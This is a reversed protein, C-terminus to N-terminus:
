FNNPSVISLFNFTYCSSSGRSLQNKSGCYHLDPENGVPVVFIRSYLLGETARVGIARKGRSNRARVQTGQYFGMAASKPHNLTIKKQINVITYQTYENSDGRHPSELSFVCCIKMNFYISLIDRNQWRVQRWTKYEGTRVAGTEFMNKHIRLHELWQLEVTSWLYM